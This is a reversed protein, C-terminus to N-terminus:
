SLTFTCYKGFGLASAQPIGYRFFAPAYVVNKFFILLKTFVNEAPM